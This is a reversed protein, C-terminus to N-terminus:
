STYKNTIKNQMFLFSFLFNINHDNQNTKDSIIYQLRYQDHQVYQLLLRYEIREAGLNLATHHNDLDDVLLSEM